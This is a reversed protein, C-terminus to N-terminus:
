PGLATLIDQRAVVGARVIKRTGRFDEEIAFLRGPVAGAAPEATLLVTYLNWAKTPDRVLRPANASLFDDQIREWKAVIEEATALARVHGMLSIDEFHFFTSNPQPSFTAFGALELVSRAEDLPSSM